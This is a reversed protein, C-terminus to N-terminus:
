ITTCMKQQQKQLFVMLFNWHELVQKTSTKDNCASLAFVGIALVVLYKNKM